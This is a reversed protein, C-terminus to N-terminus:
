TMTAPLFIVPPMGDMNLELLLHTVVAAQDPLSMNLLAESEEPTPESGEM